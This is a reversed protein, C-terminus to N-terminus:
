DKKNFINIVDIAKGAADLTDSGVNLVGKAADGTLNIAGKAADGTLGAADGLLGGTLDDLSGLTTKALITTTLSTIFLTMDTVDKRQENIKLDFEKVKPKDGNSYDKHVLKEAKLSFNDILIKSESKEKKKKDDDKSKKEDKKPDNGRALANFNLIGKENTVLTCQKMHVRLDELHINKKLMKFLYFDVYVEPVDLMLEGGFEKSNYVKLGKIDVKSKIIGIHFKEMEVKLGAVSKAGAVVAFKALSDKMIGLGLILVIIVSLIIILVKKM